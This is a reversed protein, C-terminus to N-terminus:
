PTHTKTGCTITGHRERLKSAAAHAGRPPANWWSSSKNYRSSPGHMVSSFTSVLVKLQRRSISKACFSSFGAARGVTKGKAKVGTESSVAAIPSGRRIKKDGGKGAILLVVPLPCLPEHIAHLVRGSTVYLRPASRMRLMNRTPYPHLCRKQMPAFPRSTFTGKSLASWIEQKKISTFNKYFREWVM